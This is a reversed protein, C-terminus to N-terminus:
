HGIPGVRRIMRLSLEDVRDRTGDTRFRWWTNVFDAGTRRFGLRQYLRRAPNDVRVELYVSERRRRRAEDVVYRVISGGIGQGRREPAVELAFLHLSTPPTESEGISVTGVYEGHQEAVLLERYGLEQERWRNELQAASTEVLAEALAPLEERRVPRVVLDGEDM